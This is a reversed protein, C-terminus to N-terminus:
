ICKGDVLAKGYEAKAKGGQEYEVIDRIANALKAQPDELAQKESAFYRNIVLINLYWTANWKM